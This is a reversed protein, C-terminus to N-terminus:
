ISTTSPTGIEELQKLLTILGSLGVGNITRLRSPLFKQIKLKLTMRSIQTRTLAQLYNILRQLIKFFFAMHSTAYSIPCHNLLYEALEARTFLDEIPTYKKGLLGKHMEVPRLFLSLILHMNDPVKSYEIFDIYESTSLDSILKPAFLIGGIRVADVRIESMPNNMWQLTALKKQLEIFPLESLYDVSEDYLLSYVEMNYGIPDEANQTIKAIDYYMGLTIDDWSKYFQTGEM